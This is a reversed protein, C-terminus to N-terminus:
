LDHLRTGVALRERASPAKANDRESDAIAKLGALAFDTMHDILKNADNPSLGLNPFIRKILRRDVILLWHIPAMVSVCGREVAPHDVPLELVKAIERKFFAMRVRANKWLAETAGSPAILERGIIQGMRATSGPRLIAGVILAYLIRVKDRPNAAANVAEITSDADALRNRIGELVTVYLNEIGGFHYNIAATNVGARKCIEKGMARDFGQEAFVYGAAELLRQRTSSDNKKAIPKRAGQRRAAQPHKM